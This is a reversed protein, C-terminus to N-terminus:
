HATTPPQEDTTQNKEKRFRPSFYVLIAVVTLAIAIPTVWESKLLRNLLLLAVVVWVMIAAVTRIQM